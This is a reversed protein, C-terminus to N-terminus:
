KVMPYNEQWNTSLFTTPEWTEIKRKKKVQMLYFDTFLMYKDYLNDRVHSPLTVM